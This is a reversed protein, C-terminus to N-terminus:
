PSAVLIVTEAFGTLGYTGADPRGPAFTVHSRVVSFLDSRQALKPLLESFRVGSTRMAITGFPDRFDSPSV